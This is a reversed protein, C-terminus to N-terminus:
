LDYFVVVDRQVLGITLNFYHTVFILFFLLFNRRDLFILVTEDDNQKDILDTLDVFESMLNKKVNRKSKSQSQTLKKERKQQKKREVQEVEVDQIFVLSM